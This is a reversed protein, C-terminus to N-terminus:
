SVDFIMNVEKIMSEMAISCIDSGSCTSGMRITRGDLALAVERLRQQQRVSLLNIFFASTSYLSPEPVPLDAIGFLQRRPCLFHRNRYRPSAFRITIPEDLEHVADIRWAFVPQRNRVRDQWYKRDTNSPFNDKYPFFRQVEDSGGVDITGVHCCARASRVVIYIKQPLKTLQYSRLLFAPSAQRSLFDFYDQQLMMCTVDGGVETKRNQQSKATPPTHPRRRKQSAKPTVPPDLEVRQRTSRQPTHPENSGLSASRKEGREPETNSAEEKVKIGSTPPSATPTNDGAPKKPSTKAATMRTRREVAPAPPTLQSSDEDSELDITRVSSLRTLKGFQFVEPKRAAAEATGTETQVQESTTQENGKGDKSHETKQELHMNTTAAVEATNPHIPQQLGLHEHSSPQAGTGHTKSDEAEDTHKSAETKDVENDAKGTAAAEATSAEEQVQEPTTQENGKGDKSHETKQELHMNAAAVEATNPHIPQAGTGHTKSDDAEDTQKSAETKDVENDAKGTAAAEATSTEAQVQEPTTQENGKGDKSHETRQELHIDTAAVEATNPHIPQQLGPHEHSSPQAGTGHTKSDDAEDTQKSAETKDVENDAKGTAAAEATSAEAQVQESTTQENGKGDKSHETKQELHMNTTAAVEATNPHIPQQLGLHEHSSPQAGTGHTKSDDAEDTQKSAETKDVENDAKGTAAAEATSAEAQVQESTTQENGKGDKSHETNQELHMDTAAVEATNPHIPQAGTGHTKSDEAEDTQKSAETKDVENDAKGTAAAEATSAEEQVQESTTQENGKGDKSHETKQELHMNTTAAVEATNPHIPQAGTGHTKSDDAEDTQKSAETKDVENDAKGTAAAEATSAEAQVQESTTQENGKGDKSHETNQELHMDTAAVEATNPHIPQAGTGHTKSDEAEDTQKSAETMDAENDAKGTAAAEATSAEAQVQESTTQENGKGDKSHETKQELHMNTAAVEATNPHTPQQLGLDEHSSPQAGTGHKQKSAKSREKYEAIAQMSRLNQQMEGQMSPPNPNGIYGTMITNSSGRAALPLHTVRVENGGDGDKPQLTADESGLLLAATKDGDKM